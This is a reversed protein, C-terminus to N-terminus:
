TNVHVAKIQQAYAKSLLSKKISHIQISARKASNQVDCIPLPYDVGLKFNDMLSEMATMKWPEIALHAPLKSLEPVWKKIFIAEPDHDMAQKTPNYIRITHLGVTGAQMQLQPFHIGPEFDLFQKSLHIGAQQWPQQLNHTWFSVVMARMRFNLYGTENLSRMCADVLPVGTNGTKWAEYFSQNVSRRYNNYAPNQNVFELSPDSEFKQIFHCHWHLRSMYNLLDRNKPRIKLQAATQQVVERISIAGWALYPSVRSCYSRSQLPKSISKSYNVYRNKLFSNLLKLGQTRGGEQVTKNTQKKQTIKPFNFVFKKKLNAHINLVNLRDLTPNELPQNMFVEWEKNWNKRNKRGRKIANQYYENWKLQEKKMWKLVEVDRKFTHDTGTEFHSYLEFAGHLSLIDCFVDLVEGKFLHIQADFQQLQEKLNILCEHIFNWHRESYHDSAFLSPEYIYLLITPRQNEIAAKLPAHDVWRIDRKFWVVNIM